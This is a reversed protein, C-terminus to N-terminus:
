SGAFDLWQSLKAKESCVSQSKKRTHTTSINVVLLEKTLIM